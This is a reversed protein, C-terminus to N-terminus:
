SYKKDKYLFEFYTEIYGSPAGSKLVHLFQLKLELTLYSWLISGPGSELSTFTKLFSKQAKSSDKCWVSGQGIASVRVDNETNVRTKSTRVPFYCLNFNM